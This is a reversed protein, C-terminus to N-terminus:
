GNKSSIEPSLEYGALKASRIRAAMPTTTGGDRWISLSTIASPM